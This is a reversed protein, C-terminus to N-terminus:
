FKQPLRIDQVIITHVPDSGGGLLARAAEVPSLAVPGLGLSLLGLLAVM